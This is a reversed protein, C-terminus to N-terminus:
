LCTNNCISIDDIIKEEILSKNVNPIKLITFGSHIRKPAIFKRFPTYYVEMPVNADLLCETLGSRLSYIKKSYCALSFMEAYTLYCTKYEVDDLSFKDLAINIFIDYGQKKLNVILNRWFENKLLRCSNAEPIIIVFNNLDLGISKVKKLLSEQAEIINKTPKKFLGKPNINLTKQMEEFYHATGLPENIILNEVSDFHKNTFIVQFKTNNIEFHEKKINTYFRSTLIYPIEPCIMKILDVHYKKTAILIPKKANDKKILADLLYTLFLYIEGSNANLIYAYDYNDGICRFFRKKLYKEISIKKILRNFLYYYIFEGDEFKKLVLINCLYFYHTIEYKYTKFDRFTKIINFFYFKLYRTTRKNIIKKSYVFSLFKFLTKNGIIQKSFLKM